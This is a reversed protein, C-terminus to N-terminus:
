SQPPEPPGGTYVNVVPAVPAQPKNLTMVLAAVTGPIWGLCWLLTVLLMSGCGRERVGSAFPPLFLVLLIDGIGM